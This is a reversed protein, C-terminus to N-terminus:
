RSSAGSVTALDAPATISITPPTSDPNIVTVTILADKINNACTSRARVCRTAATSSSTTDWTKGYPATTDYGLYTDGAWFQVKQVGGADLPTRTSHSARAPRRHRRERAVHHEGTPPTSDSSM